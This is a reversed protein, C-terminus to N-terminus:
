QETNSTQIIEDEDWKPIGLAEDIRDLHRHISKILEKLESKQETENMHTFSKNNNDM